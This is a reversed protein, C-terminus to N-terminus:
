GSYNSPEEIQSAWFTRIPETGRQTGNEEVMLDYWVDLREGPASVEGYIEVETEYVPNAM